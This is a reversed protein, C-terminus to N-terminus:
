ISVALGAPYRGTQGGTGISTCISGSPTQDSPKKTLATFRSGSPMFVRIPLAILLLRPGDVLSFRVLLGVPM